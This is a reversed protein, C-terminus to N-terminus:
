DKLVFYVASVIIASIGFIGLATELLPHWSTLRDAEAFMYAGAMLSSVILLSIYVFVILTWKFLVKM